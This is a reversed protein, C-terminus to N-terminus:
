AAEQELTRCFRDGRFCFGEQDKRRAPLMDRLNDLWGQVATPHDHAIPEGVRRHGILPVAASEVQFEQARHVSPRGARQHRIQRHQEVNRGGGSKASTSALWSSLIPEIALGLPKVGSDAGPKQCQRAAFRSPDLDHVGSLRRLRNRGCHSCQDHVLQSCPALSM